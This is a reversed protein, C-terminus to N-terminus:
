RLSFAIETPGGATSNLPHKTPLYATESFDMSDPFASVGELVIFTASADASSFWEAKVGQEPTYIAPKPTAALAQPAEVFITAVAPDPRTNKGAMFAFAMGACAAAPLLWSSWSLRRRPVAVPHPMEDRIAQLVRSNFFDPFPPEQAAPLAAALTARWRRTEERAALQAPQSAAWAEMAALADGALEDDLWLALTAEDPNTNM